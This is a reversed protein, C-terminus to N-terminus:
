TPKSTNTLSGYTPQGTRSYTHQVAGSSLPTCDILEFRSPAAGGAFLRKGTGLIVPFVTLRLTDILDTQLLTQVLNGSGVVQVEGASRDKLRAVADVTDGTLLTATAWSLESLTRSAVYKPVRNIAAAIPNEDGIQPWYAAWMEYTRRGLLVVEGRQHFETMSASFQEDAYPAMWGGHEFEGDRDEAPHGPAQVVGDITLFENVVLQGM